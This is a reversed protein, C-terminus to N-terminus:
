NGLLQRAVADAMLVQSKDTFHCDDYFYDTTKPILGALDLCDVQLKRCVDLLRENYANMALELAEPTYYLSGPTERFDGVGGLWLLKKEQETLGAKWLVPQTMMLLSAGHGRVTRLIKGLNREYEELATDLSPLRSSRRGTARRHRWAQLTRGQSDQRIPRHLVQYKFSRVLRWLRTRKFWPDQPWGHPLDNPYVAFAQERVGPLNATDDLFHPDYEADRMLRVTLDNVGALLVVLDPDYVPLLHEVQLVHHRLNLGSRGINGVWAQRGDIKNGLKTELLATWVRSQDVLVSETTSGGVVLVRYESSRDSSWERARVGMSNVKYVSPGKVGTVNGHEFTAETNPRLAMYHSPTPLVVHLLTEAVVLAVACGIALSIATFAVKQGSMDRNYPVM